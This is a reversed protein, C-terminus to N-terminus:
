PLKPQQSQQPLFRKLDEQTYPAPRKPEPLKVNLPVTTITGGIEESLVLGISAGMPEPQAQYRIILRGSKGPEIVPPVDDDIVYAPNYSMASLIKLPKKSLNELQLEIQGSRSTEVILEPVQKFGLKGDIRAQFQIEAVARTDNVGISELQIKQNINQSVLTTEWRYPLYGESADAWVPGGISLGPVRQLPRITRIIERAAHIPIKGEIVDGQAHRGLDIIPKILQFEPSVPGAPRTDADSDFMSAFSKYPTAHMLWQGDKWVWTERITKEIEGVNPVMSKVKVLVDVKNNDETFELGSVKFNAIPGENLQLYLDRTEPDIFQLASSRKVQSRLEWFQSARSKM